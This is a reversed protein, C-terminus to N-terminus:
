FAGRLANYDLDPQPLFGESSSLPITLENMVGSQYWNLALLLVDADVIRRASQLCVSNETGDLDLKFASIL